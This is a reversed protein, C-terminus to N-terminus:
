LNGFAVSSATNASNTPNGFITKKPLLDIKRVLRIESSIRRCMSGCLEVQPINSKRLNEVSNTKNASNTSDGFITKKPLVRNKRIVRIKAYTVSSTRKASNTPNGFIAKKSLTRYEMYTTNGFINQVHKSLARNTSNTSNGFINLLTRNERLNDFIVSSSARWNVGLWYASKWLNVEEVTSSKGFTVWSTRLKGFTM